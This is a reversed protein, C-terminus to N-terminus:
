VYSTMWPEASNEATQPPRNHPGMMGRSKSGKQRMRMMVPEKSDPTAEKTQGNEETIIKEIQCTVGEPYRSALQIEVQLTIKDGINMGGFIERVDPSDGFDVTLVNPSQIQPTEAPM